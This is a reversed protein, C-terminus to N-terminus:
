FIFLFLLDMGAELSSTAWALFHQIMKGILEIALHEIELWWMQNSDAGCSQTELDKEENYAEPHHSQVHPLSEVKPGPCINIFSYIYNKKANM